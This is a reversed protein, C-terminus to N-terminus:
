VLELNFHKLNKKVLSILEQESSKLKENLKNVKDIELKLNNINQELEKIKDHHPKDLDQKIQSKIGQKNKNLNIIKDIKNTIQSKKPNTDSYLSVLNIGWDNTFEKVFNERHKKVISNKEPITHYLNGLEKFDVIEKLLLIEDSIKKEINELEKIKDLNELYENSSKILEIKELNLKIEDEVLKIKENLKNFDEKSSMIKEKNKTFEEYNSKLENIKQSKDLIDKKEDFVKKHHKSLIVTSQKVQSLQRELLYSAKKYNIFSKKDLDSFINNIKNIFDQLNTQELKELDTIFSEIHSIYNRMNEKVFLKAREEAKSKKFDFSELESIKRKIEKIEQKNKSDVIDFIEKELSNIEDQKKRILEPVDEISIKEIVVPEPESSIIKKFFKIIPMSKSTLLM